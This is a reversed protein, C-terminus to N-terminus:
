FYHLCIFYFLMYEVAAYFEVNKEDFLLLTM